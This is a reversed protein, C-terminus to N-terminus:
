RCRCQAGPVVPASDIDMANADLRPLTSLPPPRHRPGQGHVRRPGYQRLPPVLLNPPLPGDPNLRRFDTVRRQYTIMRRRYIEANTNNHQNNDAM